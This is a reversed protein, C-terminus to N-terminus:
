MVVVETINVTSENYKADDSAIFSKCHCGVCQYVIGGYSIGSHSLNRMSGEMRYIGFFYSVKLGMKHPGTFYFNWVKCFIPPFHTPIESKVFTHFSFKVSIKENKDVFKM